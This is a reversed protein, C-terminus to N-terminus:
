PKAAKKKPSPKPSTKKSSKVAGPKTGQGPKPAPGWAFVTRVREVDDYAIHRPESDDSIRVSFGSEDAAVLEGKLRREGEVGARTKVAVVDGVAAIFHSPTRLARELGPSSVELTYEGPIPDAEDLLHSVARTVKAILAIDPGGPCDLTLRLVGSSLELDYIAAGAEEVTSTVLERVRSVTDM